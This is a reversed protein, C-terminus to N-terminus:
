KGARREAARRRLRRKNARNRTRKAQETMQSRPKHKRKAPPDLINDLTAAGWNSDILWNLRALRDPLDLAISGAL